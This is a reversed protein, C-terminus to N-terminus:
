EKGIALNGDLQKSDASSKKARSWGKLKREAALAEDRTSFQQSWVLKVPRRNFTFCDKIAGQKHQAIRTEFNDTHGIYYSDDACQLMYVWFM